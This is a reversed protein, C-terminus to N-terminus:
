RKKMKEVDENNEEGDSQSSSDNWAIPRELLVSIDTGRLCDVLM